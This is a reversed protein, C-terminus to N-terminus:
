TKVVRKLDMYLKDSNTDGPVVSIDFLLWFDLRRRLSHWCVFMAPMTFSLQLIIESGKKEVIEPSAMCVGAGYISIGRSYLQM